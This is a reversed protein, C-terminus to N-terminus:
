TPDEEELIIITAEALLRDAHEIRCDCAGMGGGERGFSRAARVTLDANAPLWPVRGDYHRTGLLMGRRPADGNAHSTLSAHAAIAQAMMEMGVWVPIGHGAVHFPHDEELRARVTVHIPSSDLIAAILVAQGAHPLLEAAPPFTM